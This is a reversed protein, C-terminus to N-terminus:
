RLAQLYAAVLAAAPHVAVADRWPRNEKALRISWAAVRGHATPEEREQMERIHWNEELPHDLTGHRNGITHRVATGFDSLIHPMTQWHTEGPKRICYGRKNIVAEYGLRQFVQMEIGRSSMERPTLQCLEALLKAYAADDELTTM